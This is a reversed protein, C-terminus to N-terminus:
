DSSTFQLSTVVFPISFTRHKIQTPTPIPHPNKGIFRVTVEFKQETPIHTLRTLERNRTIASHQLSNNIKTVPLIHYSLDQRPHNILQIGLRLSWKYIDSSPPRSNEEVTHYPLDSPNMANPSAVFEQDGNLHTSGPYSHVTYTIESGSSPRLSIPIASLSSPLNGSTSSIVCYQHSQVRHEDQVQHRRRKWRDQDWIMRVLQLNLLPPQQIKLNVIWFIMLPLLLSYARYYNQNYCQFLKLILILLLKWILCIQLLLHEM